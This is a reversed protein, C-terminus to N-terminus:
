AIAGLRIAIGALLPHAPVLTEDPGADRVQAYGDPGPDRHIRATRRRATVVWYDPVGHRAYLGAKRKMDHRLSADAIEVLLLLDDRPVEMYGEPSIRLDAKRAVVIDPEVLTDPSLRLSGATGVFIDPDLTRGLLRGIEMHMNIHPFKTAAMAILEGDILEVREDPGIIGAEIMRDLDRVDFRRPLPETPRRRLHINM